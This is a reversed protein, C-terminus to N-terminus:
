LSYDDLFQHLTALGDGGQSLDKLAQWIATEHRAVLALQPDAEAWERYRQEYPTVWDILTTLLEPWPLADWQRAQAVGKHWLAAREPASVSVAQDGSLLAATRVEVAFLTQWLTAHEPRQSLMHQFFAIGYIEGRYAENLRTQRM